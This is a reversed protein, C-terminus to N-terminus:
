STERQLERKQPAAVIESKLLQNTSGQVIAAVSLYNVTFSSGDSTLSSVTVLQRNQRNQMIVQTSPFSSITGVATNLSTRSDTFTVNGFNALTTIIGNSLTPREVIWEASLRSANYLFNQQFRQGKTVDVIEISWKNTASDVLSISATIKDGPSVELATITVSEDPLLEYWASYTDNGNVSDQETGTQIVTSDFQGGIGIWAVSFEDDPSVDVRPVIWSGSVGAIVPEPNVLDSAVVYGAWDLSTLRQVLTHTFFASLFSAVLVLSVILMIIWLFALFVSSTRWGRQTRHLRTSRLRSRM